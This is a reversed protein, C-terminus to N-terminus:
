KLGYLEDIEGWVLRTVYEQREAMKDWDLEEKVFLDMAREMMRIAAESKIKKVDANTQPMTVKTEPVISKQQTESVLKLTLLNYDKGQKSKKVELTYDVENGEGIEDSVKDNLYGIVGNELTVLHGTVKGQYTKTELTKVRTKM